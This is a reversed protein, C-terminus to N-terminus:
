ILNKYTVSPKIQQSPKTFITNWLSKILKTKTYKKMERIYINYELHSM